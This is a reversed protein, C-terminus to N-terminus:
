DKIFIKKNRRKKIKKREIIIEKAEYRQIYIYYYIYNINKVLNFFFVRGM